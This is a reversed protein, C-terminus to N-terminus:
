EGRGNNEFYGSLTGAGVLVDAGGNGDMDAFRIRDEGLSFTAPFKVCGGRRAGAIVAM